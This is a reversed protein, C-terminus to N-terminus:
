RKDESPACNGSRTSVAASTPESTSARDMVRKSTAVDDWAWLWLPPVPLSLEELVWVDDAPTPVVAAILVVIVEAVAVAVAAASVPMITTSPSPLARCASGLPPPTRLVWM